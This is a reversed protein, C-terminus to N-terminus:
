QKVQLMKGEFNNKPSQLLKRFGTESYFGTMSLEQAIALFNMKIEALTSFCLPLFNQVLYENNESDTIVHLAGCMHKLM